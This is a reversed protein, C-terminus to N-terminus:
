ILRYSLYVGAITLAAVIAARAAFYTMPWAIIEWAFAILAVYDPPYQDETLMIVFPTTHETFVPTIIISSM